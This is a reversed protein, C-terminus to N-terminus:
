PKAIVTTIAKFAGAQQGVHSALLTLKARAIKEDLQAVSTAMFSFMALFAKGEPRSFLQPDEDMGQLQVRGQVVAQQILTVNLAQRRFELSSHHVVYDVFSQLSIYVAAITITCALVIKFVSKRRLWMAQLVFLAAACGSLLRGAVEIHHVDEQSAGGGVVDLLRANFALEFALYCLTLCAVVVM